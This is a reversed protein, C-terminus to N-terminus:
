KGKKIRLDKGTIVKAHMDKGKKMMKMPKVVAQNSNPIEYKMM